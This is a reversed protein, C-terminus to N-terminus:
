GMVANVHAEVDSHKNLIKMQVSQLEDQNDIVRRMYASSDNVDSRTDCRYHSHNLVKPVVKIVFEQRTAKVFDKDVFITNKDKMWVDRHKSVGLQVEVFSNVQNIAWQLRHLNQTARKGIKSMPYHDMEYKMEDEIVENYDKKDQFVDGSDFLEKHRSDVAIAGTRREIDRAMSKSGKNLVVPSGSIEELSLVNDTATHILPKSYFASTLEQNGKMRKLIWNSEDKTLEDKAKLHAIYAERVEEKVKDWVECGNLIDNRAFNLDLDEKTVITGPSAFVKESKVRAGKNYIGMRSNWDSEEFKVYASDTEYTFNLENYFSEGNINLDIKHLWPIYKILNKVDQVKQSVDEIKHYLQVEITCGEVHKDSELVHYSLGSTDLSREKGQVTIDAHEEDLSIVLVNDKTAWINRGFSFIQGRGMRFKGFEKDEIDSDKMGFKKFYTNIEGETMGSGNDTIALREERIDISIEDAGADVSNMVAELIAKEISGAQKKMVDELLGETTEFTQKPM